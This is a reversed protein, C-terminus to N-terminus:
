TVSGELCGRARHPTQPPSQSFHSLLLTQNWCGARGWVGAALKQVGEPGELVVKGGNGAEWRVNRIWAKERPLIPCSPTAVYNTPHLAFHFHLCEQKLMILFKLIHHCLMFPHVFDLQVLRLGMFIARTVVTM